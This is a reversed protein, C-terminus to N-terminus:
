ESRLMAMADVQTARWAPILSALVVVSFLVVALAVYTVPDTTGVGYVLGRMVRSLILAAGLGFVLGVLAYRAGSWVVM